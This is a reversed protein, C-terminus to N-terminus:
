GLDPACSLCELLILLYQTADLWIENHHPFSEM